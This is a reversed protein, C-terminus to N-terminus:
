PVPTSDDADLLADLADGFVDGKGVGVGKALEPDVHLQRPKEMRVFGNPTYSPVYGGPPQPITNPPPVGPAGQVPANVGPVPASPDICIQQAPDWHGNPCWDDSQDTCCVFQVGKGTRPRAIVYEEGNPGGPTAHYLDYDRISGNVGENQIEQDLYQVDVLSSLEFAKYVDILRENPFIPQTM